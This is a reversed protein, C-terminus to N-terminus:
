EAEAPASERRSLKRSLWEGIPDIVVYGVPVVVLTLFTATLLGAAVSVGLPARAEGGAGFGLAIPMLGLVTSITTMWVPRFRVVAAKRAAELRDTGRERLQNTYDIMLISNKTAMGLLMILGIFTYVSFPMGLIALAGFAGVAALPVALMIIFPQVVSEFQGALVLWVFVAAFGIAIALYYFSEQFNQARGTLSHEVGSPLLRDLENRLKTLGDGLTV